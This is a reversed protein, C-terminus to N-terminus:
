LASCRGCVRVIYQPDGQAASQICATRGTCYWYSGDSGGDLMHSAVLGVASVCCAVCSRNTTCKLNVTQDSGDFVCRQLSVAVHLAVREVLPACIGPALDGHRSFKTRHFRINTSGWYTVQKMPRAMAWATLWRGRVAYARTRDRTLGHPIQPPCTKGQWKWKLPAGNSPFVFVLRWSQTACYAELSRHTRLM